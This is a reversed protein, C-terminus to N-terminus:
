SLMPSHQGLAARHDLRPEDLPFVSNPFGRSKSLRPGQATTDRPGLASGTIVLRGLSDLDRLERPM